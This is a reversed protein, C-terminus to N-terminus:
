KKNQGLIKHAAPFLYNACLEKREKSGRWEPVTQPAKLVIQYLEKFRALYKISDGDTVLSALWDEEDLMDELLEVFRKHKTKMRMLAMLKDDFPHEPEHLEHEEAEASDMDDVLDFDDKMVKAILHANKHDEGDPFNFKQLIDKLDLVALDFDNQLKSMINQATKQERLYGSVIDVLVQKLLDPFDSSEGSLKDKNADVFESVLKQDDM